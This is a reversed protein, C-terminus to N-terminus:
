VGIDRRKLTVWTIPSKSFSGGSSAGFPLLSHIDEEGSLSEESLQGLVTCVRCALINEEKERLPFFITSLLLCHLLVQETFPHGGRRSESLLLAKGLFIGVHLHAQPFHLGIAEHTHQPPTASAQASFTCVPFCYLLHRTFLSGWDPFARWKQPDGLNAFM